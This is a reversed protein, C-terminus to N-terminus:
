LLPKAIEILEKQDEFFRNRIKKSKFSLVRPYNTSSPEIVFEDNCCTEIIHKVTDDDWNPEWGENYYDRLFLLIRLAEAADALKQSPYGKYEDKDYESKPEYIREVEDWVEEFTPVPAKQEFGQLTYPSTSLTPNTAWVPRGELDYYSLDDEGEFQVEIPYDYSHIKHCIEDEKIDLVKGKKNPINVQDYVEMGVRFVTKM